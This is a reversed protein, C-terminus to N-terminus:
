FVRPRMRSSAPDGEIGGSPIYGEPIAWIRCGAKTM